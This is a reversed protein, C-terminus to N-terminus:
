GYKKVINEIEETTYGSSYLVGILAGISTGSIYDIPIKNKELVKLVGLEAFGKAGGGSLVLGIKAREKSETEKIIENEAFVINILLFFTLIKKM